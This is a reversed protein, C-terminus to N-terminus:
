FGLVLPKDYIRLHGKEKCFHTGEVMLTSEVWLDQGDGDNTAEHWLGRKIIDKTEIWSGVGMRAVVSQFDKVFWMREELGTAGIGGMALVWLLGYDDGDWEALAMKLRTVLCEFPAVTYPIPFTVLLAYIMVALRYCESRGVRPLLSLLAHQAANRHDLLVSAPVVKRGECFDDIMITYSKLMSLVVLIDQDTNIYIEQDYHTFESTQDSLAVVPFRPSTCNRTAVLLGGLSILAALGPIEIKDLGGKLEILQSLGEYHIPDIESLALLHLLQLRKLPGQNPTRSPLEQMRQSAEKKTLATVAFINIDKCAEKPDQIAINLGRVIKARSQFMDRAIRSSPIAGRIGQSNILAGTIFMHLVCANSTSMQILNARANFSNAGDPFLAPLFYHANFAICHNVLARPLNIDYPSFPDVDAGLHASNMPPLPKFDDDDRPVKKDRRHGSQKVKAKNRPPRNHRWHFYAANARVIERTQSKQDPDDPKVNIFQLDIKAGPCSRACRQRRPARQSPLM